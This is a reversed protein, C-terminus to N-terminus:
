ALTLVEVARQGGIGLEIRAQVVRGAQDLEALLLMVLLNYLLGFSRKGGKAGLNLALRKQPSTLAALAVWM